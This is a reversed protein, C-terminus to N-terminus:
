RQMLVKLDLFMFPVKKIIEKVRFINNRSNKATESAIAEGAGEQKMKVEFVMILVKSKTM